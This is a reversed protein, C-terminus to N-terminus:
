FKYAVTFSDDVAVSERGANRTIAIDASWSSSIAAEQLPFIVNRVIPWNDM